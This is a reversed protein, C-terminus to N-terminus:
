RAVPTDDSEAVPETPPRVVLVPRSGRQLVDLAVSGVLARAVGTRGHTAMVILSADCAKAAAMIGDAPHGIRVATSVSLGHSRLDRAIEDVYSQAARELVNRRLDHHPSGFRITEATSSASSSPVIRVIFVHATLATALKTAVPLVKEGMPSGDLPVLLRLPADSTHPERPPMGARVLLIPLASNALVTEAVSGYVLRGLGSRGHTTLVIADAHRVRAEELLVDAPDGPVVVTESIVGRERLDAAVKALYAEAERALARAAQPDADAASDPAVYRLVNPNAEDIPALLTGTPVARVLVLRVKSARALQEALPLAAEALTSGDLGIVLRRIM